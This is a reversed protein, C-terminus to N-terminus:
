GHGIQPTAIGQRSTYDSGAAHCAFRFTDTPGYVLSATVLSTGSM